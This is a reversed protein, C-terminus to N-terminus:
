ETSPYVQPEVLTGGSRRKIKVYIVAGIAVAAGGLPAAVFAVIFGYLPWLVALTALEGVIAFIMIFLM